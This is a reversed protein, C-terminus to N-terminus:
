SKRKINELMQVQVMEIDERLNLFEVSIEEKRRKLNIQNVRQEFISNKYDIILQINFKRLSLNDKLIQEYEEVKVNLVALIPDSIRQIARAPDRAIDISYGNIRDMKVKMQEIQLRLKANQETTSGEIEQLNKLLLENKEKEATFDKKAREFYVRVKEKEAEM